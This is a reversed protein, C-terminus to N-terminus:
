VGAPSGDKRPDSVATLMGRFVNKNGGDSSSVPELLDQVIMQCVAGSGTGELVHGRSRLFERAEGSLAIVEGDTVTEDEYKVVNPVLKHYVRASQVAAFPSMGVVFHNLFVQTVAAIINTGGSGGLVGALQGDKLIITPTMSSLPRKGPAIFNAPAPPLHDPTQQPVSFDDMENNLVIGTSPSLVCASFYYNVTTTISVANRDGDVVCLHSTGNDRLQSWKPLYYDSPFTTNDAIRQRIKDAYAPSLMETVNDAVNVFGPDGLDMRAALMHKVAEILRHVGLFGKLFETSKYGGLINLVLAMGVTGSSPPPMGLFTFGMVDAEMAPSVAVNYGRLDKVTVVGGARRVDEVLRAGIDGGYFKAVGHEALAELVDALAPNHCLEGATLVKGNPAFVGRLGPDALVDVETEKLANAVYPVVTYGSRALKIAPTFLSKWPLRGYRSWAAHLGALEGPVGMALAGKYKTTPDAEYMNPTAAAPATERADFAVAEGSSADRVVIFAGGGIGSSMPHVVGLCLAAAVAADVAHGGARLAAAGVESCRGDDAAVAGEGSVAEHTSLRAGGSVRSHGPDGGPGSLLLLLVGALALLAVAIALAACPRRVRRRSPADPSVGGGPMLHSQLGGRAAAAM